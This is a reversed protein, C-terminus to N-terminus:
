LTTIKNYLNNYFDPIYHMPSRGWQHEVAAILLSSDSELIQSSNIFGGLFRYIRDLLDNQQKITSINDFGNNDSDKEALYVKNILLKELSDISHLYEIFLKIGQTLHEWYM